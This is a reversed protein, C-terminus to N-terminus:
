MEVRIREKRLLLEDESYEQDYMKEIRIFRKLSKKTTRKRYIHIEGEFLDLIAQVEQPSHMHPNMVALTTFGRSKLSPLLATLWRRTTIAQHQLLVDSIIKICIRRAKKPIRDLRRFASNLAISVDTMNEVGKVKFVNPQDKIIADAEPNCLVLSFNSPFRDVFVKVSSGDITVHFTIQDNNIGTELFREILLDREDCSPSTLIVAYNEPIGGLLM